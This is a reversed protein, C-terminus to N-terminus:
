FDTAAQGAKPGPGEVASAEKACFNTNFSICQMGNKPFIFNAEPFLSQKREERFFALDAQSM